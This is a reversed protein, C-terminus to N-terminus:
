PRFGEFIMQDAYRAAKERDDASRVTWAPLPLGFVSRTLAPLLAPLNSVLYAVFQPRATLVHALAAMSRGPAAFADSWAHKRVAMGRPLRPAIRGLEVIQAPEFSMVAAQGAYGSLVKAARTALRRDGARPSKLEILLAVGGAVFDCLEGLTMMRDRTARFTVRKLEAATMADLRGSTETLRGLTDDHYVMAEGDGSIQLDCEIGYRAAIAAAFASPTNEIIGNQDDHLGRHALPRAILWDLDAM